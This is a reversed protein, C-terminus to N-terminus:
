REFSDGILEDLECNAFQNASLEVIPEVLQDGTPEFQQRNQSTSDAEFEYALEQENAGGVDGVGGAGGFLTMWVADADADAGVGASADVSDMDPAGKVGFRESASGDAGDECDVDIGKAGDAMRTQYDGSAVVEADDMMLDDDFLSVWKDWEVGNLKVRLNPKLDLWSALQRQGVGQNHALQFLNMQISGVVDSAIQAIATWYFQDGKLDVQQISDALM